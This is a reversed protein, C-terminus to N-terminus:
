MYKQNTRLNVTKFVSQFSIVKLIDCLRYKMDQWVLNM